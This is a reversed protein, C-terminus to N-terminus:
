AALWGTHIVHLGVEGATKKQDLYAFTIPLSQTFIYQRM